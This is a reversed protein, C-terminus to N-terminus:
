QPAMPSGPPLCAPYSRSPPPLSHHPLPSQSLLQWQILVSVAQTKAVCLSSPPCTNLALVLYRNLLGDLVLEQLSDPSVLGAWETINGLLQLFLFMNTLSLSLSLPPPPPPPPSM